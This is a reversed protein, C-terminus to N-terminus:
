CRELGDLDFIPIAQQAVQEDDAVGDTREGNLTGEHNLPSFLVTLRKKLVGKQCQRLFTYGFFSPPVTKRQQAGM